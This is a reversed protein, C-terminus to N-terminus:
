FKLGTILYNITLCLKAEHKLLNVEFSRIVPQVRPGGGGVEALVM